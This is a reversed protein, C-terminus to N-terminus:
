SLAIALALGTVGAVVAALVPDIGAENSGSALDPSGAPLIPLQPSGAPSLGSALWASPDVPVGNSNIQFHLNPGTVTGTAGSLGLVDGAGVAQGVSVLLQSLHGYTGVFGSGHDVQVVNGFGSQQGAFVVVGAAQSYVPTGVPVAYDIGQHDTSAGATPQVRLGFVSSIPGAVPPAYAGLGRGRTFYLAPIPLVVPRM